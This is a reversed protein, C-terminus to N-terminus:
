SLIFSLIFIAPLITNSSHTRQPPWSTSPHLRWPQPQIVERWLQKCLTFFKQIHAPHMYPVTFGSLSSCGCDLSDQYCHQSSSYLLPKSWYSWSLGLSSLSLCFGLPLITIQPHLSPLFCCKTFICLLSSPAQIRLDTHVRSYLPLPLLFLRKLFILLLTPLGSHLPFTLSFLVRLLFSTKSLSLFISKPQLDRICWSSSTNCLSVHNPRIWSLYSHPTTM